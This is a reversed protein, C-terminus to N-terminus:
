KLFSNRDLAIAKIFMWGRILKSIPWLLLKKWFQWESQRTIQGTRPYQQCLQKPFDQNAALQTAMTKLLMLQADLYFVDTQQWTEDCEFHWLAQYAAELSPDTLVVQGPIHNPWQLIAQSPTITEDLVALLLLAAHARAQTFQNPKVIDHM